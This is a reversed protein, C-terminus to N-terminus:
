LLIAKVIPMSSAVANTRIKIDMFTGYANACACLVNIDSKRWPIHERVLGPVVDLVTKANPDLVDNHHSLNGCLEGKSILWVKAKLMDRHDGIALPKDVDIQQCIYLLSPDVVVM